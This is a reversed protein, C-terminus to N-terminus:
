RIGIEILWFPSIIFFLSAIAASVPASAAPLTEAHVLVLPFYSPYGYPDEAFAPFLFEHLDAFEQSLLEQLDLEQLLLEHSLLLQL